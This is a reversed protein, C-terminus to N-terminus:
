MLKHVLFILLAVLLFGTNIKLAMKWVEKYIGKQLLGYINDM